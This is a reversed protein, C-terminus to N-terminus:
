YLRNYYAVIDLLDPQNKHKLRGNKMYAEIKDAEEGFCGIFDKKRNGLAMAPQDGFKLFCNCERIFEERDGASSLRQKADGEIIQYSVIWRKLLSCEGEELLEFYGQKLENNCYYNTYIFSKNAFRITEIEGPNAIAMTDGENIFQMQQTYINYRFKHGTIVTKDKMIIVGENWDHNLFASGTTGSMPLDSMAGGANITGQENSEGAKPAKDIYNSSPKIPDQSFLQSFILVFGLAILFKTTKM